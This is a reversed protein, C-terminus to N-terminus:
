ARQQLGGRRAAVALVVVFGVAVLSLVALSAQFNGTADRVAGLGLPSIAAISYGAGLMVATVGAVRAPSATLRLPLALILPFLAGNAYGAILAFLPALSPVLALAATASAFALATGIIALDNSVVGRSLVGVSVAGAIAAVNLLGVLGGAGAATWGIESYAEPLWSVLGYYVIGYLGFAAALLWARPELFDRRDLAIRAVDRARRGFIALWPVVLVLTLGSFVALAGRWGGLTIALPVAIAASAAAGLQLGASYSATAGLPARPLREKVVVPLLAGALGMGTGVGITLGVIALANAATTRLLGCVGILVIAAGITWTSGFRAAVFAALPAFLGMCLVPITGLLGAVAHSMGLERELDPLLPAIGVLQPRLSLAVVFLAALM